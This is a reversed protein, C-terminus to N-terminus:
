SILGTALISEASADDRMASAKIIRLGRFGRFSKVDNTLLPLKSEVCLGAVLVSVPKLRPHGAFWAGYRPSQKANLGLIKMAGMASTVAARERDGPALAFLEIANFVTTYCFFKMMAVRLAPVRPGHHLLYEVVIDTNIALKLRNL